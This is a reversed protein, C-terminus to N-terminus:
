ILRSVGIGVSVSVNLSEKEGVMPIEAVADCKGLIEKPIGDVENGFVLALPKKIKIKRYDEAREDIEFAVVLFGENKLSTLASDIGDFHKFAVTNEAGLSVKTFDKRVRGFRDKPGPTYGVLYIDTVGLCDATRFISAVNFVSRVENLVVIVRETKVENSKM